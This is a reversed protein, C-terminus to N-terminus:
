QTQYFSFYDLWLSHVTQPLNRNDEDYMSGFRSFNAGDWPRTEENDDLSLRPNGTIFKWSSFAYDIAHSYDNNREGEIRQRCTTSTAGIYTELDKQTVNANLFRGFMEPFAIKVIVLDILLEIWGYYTNVNTLVDSNALTLSSVIQGIERLSINNVALVLQLRSKLPEAIHEPIGMEKILHALYELSTQKRNHADGITSPLELTVQIFKKLYSKADINEGYRAVVSNELASINVGLVSHVHPVSFCHKIVELVELAYDPRCRDLEDIVFVLTSGTKDTHKPEALAMLAKQFEEMATRRGTEKKWFAEIATASEGGVANIATSSIAGAAESMGTTAVALGIRTLPKALKIAANMVNGILVKKQSPVRESLASVLAPLPDSLYDNAFADFYVVTSSSNNEITHAGVWRKLFYSKGTGWEGNLALVLPDDIRELLNTLAKSTKKRGLIDSSGFGENYLDVPPEPPLFKM